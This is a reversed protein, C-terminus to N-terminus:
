TVSLPFACRTRYSELRSSCGDWTSAFSIDISYLTSHSILSQSTVRSAYCLRAGTRVLEINFAHLYVSSISTTQECERSLEAFLRREGGISFKRRCGFSRVSARACVPLFCGERRRSVISM